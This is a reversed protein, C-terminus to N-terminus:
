SRERELLVEVGAPRDFLQIVRWGYRGLQNLRRQLPNGKLPRYGSTDILEGEVMRGDDVWKHTQVYLFRYQYVRKVEKRAQRHNIEEM